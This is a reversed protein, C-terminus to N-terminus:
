LPYITNNDHIYGGLHEQLVLSDREWTQDIFHVPPFHIQQTPFPALSVLIAGGAHGPGAWARPDPCHITRQLTRVRHSPLHWVCAMAISACQMPRARPRDPVPCDVDKSNLAVVRGLLSVKDLGGVPSPCSTGPLWQYPSAPGPLATSPVGSHKRVHIIRHWHHPLDRLADWKGASSAGQHVWPQHEAAPSRQLTGCAAPHASTRAPPGPPM